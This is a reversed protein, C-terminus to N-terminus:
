RLHRRYQDILQIVDPDLKPIVMVQGMEASGVVGFAAKNRRFLRAALITTAQQIALPVTAYGWNGTIRLGRQVGVPFSYSGQHRNVEVHTYPEGEETANHPLLYYDEGDSWSIEWLGDANEDTQFATVSILDDLFVMDPFEPTYYRTKNSQSDFRRMCYGNIQECAADIAQNLAADDASDPINGIFAKLNALTIYDFAPM